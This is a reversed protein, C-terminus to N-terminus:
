QQHCKGRRMKTGKNRTKGSFHAPPKTHTDLLLPNRIAMKGLIPWLDKPDRQTLLLSQFCFLRLFDGLQIKIRSDCKKTVQCNPFNLLLKKTDHYNHSFVGNFYHLHQMVSKELPM